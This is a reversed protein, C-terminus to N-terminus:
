KESKGATEKTLEELKKILEEGYINIAIIRGSTDLLYNQPITEFGLAVIDRYQKGRKDFGVYHNIGKSFNRMDIARKWPSTIKDLTIACVVLDEKFKNKAEIIKPIKQLCPQCWSAWFEVLVYHGRFTLLSTVQGSERHLMLSLKEGVKAPIPTISKDTKINKRADLIQFLKKSIFKSKESQPAHRFGPRLAKIPWYNPFRKEAENRLKVQEAPLEKKLLLLGYWSLYPYKSKVAALLVEKNKKEILSLSDSIAIRSLSDLRPVTLMEQYMARKINRNKIFDMFHAYANHADSGKVEKVCHYYEADSEGLKIKIKDGPTVVIEADINTTSFVLMINTQYPVNAHLKIIHHKNDVVSSDQIDKENGMLTRLYVTQPISSLSPDLVITIEVNHKSLSYISM